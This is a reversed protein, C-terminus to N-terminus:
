KMAETIGDIDSGLVKPLDIIDETFELRPEFDTRGPDVSIREVVRTDGEVMGLKKECIRSIRERSALSTYESTLVGIKEKLDREVRKKKSIDEMLSSTYVQTSVYALLVVAFLSCALVMMLVGLRGTVADTLLQTVGRLTNTKRKQRM